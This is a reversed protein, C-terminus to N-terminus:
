YHGDRSRHPNSEREIDKRDEYNRAKVKTDRKNAREMNMKRKKQRKILEAIEEELNLFNVYREQTLTGKELATRVACGEDNGHSCDSFRCEDALTSLDAFSERLTQEDTWMQIERMGPNDILIGGGPLIVLERAVTTHRGKGTVENVDGTWLWEDGLLSNVLTSKGVGSSGVISLTVGQKLYQKLAKLGSQKLASIPVIDASPELAAIADVAEKIVKAPYEDIKNVFVVPKTGSRRILTFYREMRRPNFDPGPDTVVAVIDVNAALVQEASSKGPEKRSFCTQRPLLAKIVAEDGPKGPDIAVWDGVAPLEADCSAQHWLKGSLVVDLEDGEDLLASYNIKTERILRGPIWGKKSVKDFEAAFHDNWGIDKLTLPM